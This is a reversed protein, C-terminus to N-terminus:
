FKTMVYILTYQGEDTIGENVILYENSNRFMMMQNQAMYGQNILISRQFADLKERSTFEAVGLAVSKKQTRFFIDCLQDIAPNSKSYVHVIADIEMMSFDNYVEFDRKGYTIIDAIDKEIQVYDNREDFSVMVKELYNPSLMLINGVGINSLYLNQIKNDLNHYKFLLGYIKQIINVSLENAVNNGKFSSLKNRQESTFDQPNEKNLLMKLISKDNASLNFSQYPMITGGKGYVKENFGVVNIFENPVYVFMTTNPLRLASTVGDNFLFKFKYVKGKKFESQSIYTGDKKRIEGTFDENFSVHVMEGAEAGMVGGGLKYKRSSKRYNKQKEFEKIADSLKKSSEEMKELEIYYSDNEDLHDQAIAQAVEKDSVGKKKFQKITDIHEMEHKTGKKLQDKKFDKYWSMDRVDGGNAFKEPVYYLDGEFEFGIAEQGWRKAWESLKMVLKNKNAEFADKTAFSVVPVVDETVLESNSAMFGGVKDSKTFGGFLRALYESVEDVREKLESESIVKDVDQTSPVYVALELPLHFMKNAKPLDVGGGKAYQNDNDYEDWTLDYTKSRYIQKNTKSDYIQVAFDYGRRIREEYYKIIEDKSMDEDKNIEYDNNLVASKSKWVYTYFKRKGEVGGGEKFQYPAYNKEWEQSSIAGVKEYEGSDFVNNMKTKAGRMTDHESIKRYYGEENEAYVVFGGKAFETPNANIAGDEYGGMSMSATEYDELKMTNATKGGKAFQNPILQIGYEEKNDNVYIIENNLFANIENIPIPAIGRDFKLTLYRYRFNPSSFMVGEIRHESALSVGMSYLNAYKGVLNNYDYTEVDISGGGEYSDSLFEKKFYKRLEDMGKLKNSYQADQTSYVGKEFSVVNGDNMWEQFSEEEDDDLIQGGNKYKYKKGTVNGCDIQVGNGDASNIESAIECITMEKGEFEFKKESAMNRKNIVGEGGELEVQQGTSKVEMRIGGEKHSPGETIGGKAGM